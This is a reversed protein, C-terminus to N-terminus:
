GVVRKNYKLMIAARIYDGLVSLQQESFMSKLLSFVRECSASNPSLAFVMRAALSWTPFSGGNTCWWSLINESYAEIDSKDFTPATAAAALYLPIEQKLKPLLHHVGLPTIAIMADVFSPVVHASAFNPDFAQAVRSLEYMAVCSYQSDCTGTIRKELYDFGPKLADYIRSREPLHRIVLVPKGDQGRGAPAPGDRGSRLEEPEYHEMHGDPYVILWAEREQGPYLTSDVKELKTLTGTFVGHGDFHKEVKVGKKLEILARLVADVNRLVGDAKATISRGLARLAEVKEYALLIELRDGELQYTTSVLVRMDLMAALELRLEAGKTNYIHLMKVRTAEGYDRAECELLFDRLQRTGAEAM